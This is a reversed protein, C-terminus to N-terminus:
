MTNNWQNCLIIYAACLSCQTTESTAAALSTPLAFMVCPTTLEAMMLSSPALQLLHLFRVLVIINLEAKRTLQSQLIKM